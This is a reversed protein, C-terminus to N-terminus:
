GLKTTDKNDHSDLGNPFNQILFQVCKIDGEVFNLQNLSTIDCWIFSQHEKLKIKFSERCICEIFILNFNGFHYSLIQKKPVVSLEIEEFLERIISDQVSEGRIIKGGPFEWKDKFPGIGKQCVLIKNDHSVIGCVVDIKEM